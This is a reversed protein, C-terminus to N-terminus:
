SLRMFPEWSRIPLKLAESASISVPACLECTLNELHRKKKKNTEKQPKFCNVDRLFFNYKM